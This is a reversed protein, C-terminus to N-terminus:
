ETKSETGPCVVTCKNELCLSIFPCRSLMQYEGPTECDDNSVCATELVKEVKYSDLSYGKPLIINGPCPAFECNPWTRGVYSGDPCLKAEQTCYIPKSANVSLQWISYNLYAAFSVWLIYPVLLWAAFKAQGGTAERSSPSIKSFVIITALIALWLFIIEIFATAPSHLGFFIISWFINLILQGIFIGLAIKIRRKEQGDSAKAYSSWILYLSISMLAFLLIWVPSFLWSPPMWTPKTLGAYWNSGIAPTTFLSGIIGAFECVAIAIIFKLVNNIKM